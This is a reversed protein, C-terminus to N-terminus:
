APVKRKRSNWGRTALVKARDEELDADCVNPGHAFCDNCVYQWSSLDMREVFGDASRCFPCPKAKPIRM